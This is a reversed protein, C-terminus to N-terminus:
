RGAEAPENTSQRPNELSQVKNRSSPLESPFFRKKITAGKMQNRMGSRGNTKRSLGELSIFIINKGDTLIHMQEWNVGTIAIMSSAIDKPGRVYGYRLENKVKLKCEAGDIMEEKMKIYKKLCYKVYQEISLSVNTSSPMNILVSIRNSSDQIVLRNGHLEYDFLVGKYEGSNQINIKDNKIFYAHMQIDEILWEEKVIGKVWSVAGNIIEDKNNLAVDSSFCKNEANPLIADVYGGYEAAIDNIIGQYPELGNNGEAIGISYFIGFISIGLMFITLYNFKM